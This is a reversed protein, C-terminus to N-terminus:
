SFYSYISPHFFIIVSCLLNYNINILIFLIGEVHGYGDAIASFNTVTWDVARGGFHEVGKGLTLAKDFM